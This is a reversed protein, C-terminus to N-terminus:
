TCLMSLTSECMGVMVLVTQAEGKFLFALGTLLQFLAMLPFTTLLLNRRGFSDIAFIAPIAFVFNIIGFGM